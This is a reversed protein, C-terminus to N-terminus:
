ADVSIVMVAKQKKISEAMDRDIFIHMMKELKGGDEKILVEKIPLILKHQCLKILAEAIFLTYCRM